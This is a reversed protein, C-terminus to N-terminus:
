ESAKQPRSAEQPQAEERHGRIPATADDLQRLELTGSDTIVVPFTSIELIANSTPQEDPVPETV